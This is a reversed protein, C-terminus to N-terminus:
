ITNSGRKELQVPSSAIDQYLQFVSAPMLPFSDLAQPASGETWTKAQDFVSRALRDFEEIPLNLGFVVSPAAPSSAQPEDSMRFVPLICSSGINGTRGYEPCDSGEMAHVSIICSSMLIILLVATIFQRM